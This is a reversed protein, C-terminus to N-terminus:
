SAEDAAISAAARAAKKNVRLQRQARVARLLKSEEEEVELQGKGLLEFSPYTELKELAVILVPMTIPQGPSANRASNGTGGGNVIAQVMGLPPNGPSRQATRTPTGATDSVAFITTLSALSSHRISTDNFMTARKAYYRNLFVRTKTIAKRFDAVLQQMQETRRACAEALSGETATTQYRSAFSRSREFARVLEVDSPDCTYWFDSPELGCTITKSNREHFFAVKDTVPKFFLAEQLKSSADIVAKWKKCVGQAFLLNKISLDLLIAELLETTSFVQSAPTTSAM